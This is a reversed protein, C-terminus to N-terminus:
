EAPAVVVRRNPEEGESYTSIGDIEGLAKHVIRREFAPLADLVAEEQRELVQAAIKTALKTLSEERRRRYDNADLTARIGNSFRRAAVINLLYQLANIVEGHKGVLFAADQGGLRINVYRGSVEAIDTDVSLGSAEILETLLGLLQEADEQTAEREEVAPAAEVPADVPAKAAPEPATDKKAGIRRSRPKPEPKMEDASPEVTAEIDAKVAKPTEKIPEPAPKNDPAEARVRVQTKGFLGKSEELVTVTVQSVDVGLKSAASKKAEDVSKATVEVTQM